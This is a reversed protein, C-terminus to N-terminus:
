SLLFAMIYSNSFDPIKNETIGYAEMKHACTSTTDKETSSYKFISDGAELVSLVDWCM